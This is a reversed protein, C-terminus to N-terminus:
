NIATGLVEMQECFFEYFRERQVEDNEEIEDPPDFYSTDPDHIKM